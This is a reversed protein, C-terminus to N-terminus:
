AWRRERKLREILADLESGDMCVLAADHEKTLPVDLV